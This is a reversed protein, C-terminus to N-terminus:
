YKKKGRFMQEDLYQMHIMWHMKLVENSMKVLALKISSPKTYLLTCRSRNM